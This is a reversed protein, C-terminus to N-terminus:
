IQRRLAQAANHIIDWPGSYPPAYALDMWGIEDINMETWLAASLTNIRDVAGAYGVTQAGLVKGSSKDAILKLGIKKMGMPAAVANGWMLISVPDYNSKIAEVEDIGTAGAELNFLRFSQAGVIGPFTLMKGGINRGAVRGQKNAIDGLPINVWQKSIRHYAECCDGAAYVNELSTQQRDNVAIAGTRGLRVGMKEALDVNPKVGVAMLILDAEFNGRNTVACLPFDKGEEIATTEVEPVFEVGNTQLEELMLKALEPDWRNAPMTGRHLVTTRVGSRQLSECMEMSIFGAGIIVAKRCKKERLYAKIKIGDELNKLTFIGSKHVGPIDPIISKAGTGIVLIDFPIIKNNQIELTKGEYNVSLVETNLQVDIGTERFKEPTRAILRDETPIEDAIYYPTPCSAFSVFKGRELITVNFSPDNRKAEAATSAGGAGGGIIVLNKGM